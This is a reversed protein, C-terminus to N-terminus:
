MVVGCVSKEICFTLPKKMACRANCRIKMSAVNTIAIASITTSVGCEAPADVASATISAGVFQAVAACFVVGVNTGGPRLVGTAAALAIGTGQTEESTGAAAVGDSAGDLVIVGACLGVGVCLDSRARSAGLPSGVMLKGSKQVEV